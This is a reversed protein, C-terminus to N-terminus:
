SPLSIRAHRSPRAVHQEDLDLERATVRTYVHKGSADRRGQVAVALADPQNQAMVPLHSAINLFDSAM